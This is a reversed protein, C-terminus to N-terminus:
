WQVLRFTADIAAATSRRREQEPDEALDPVASYAPALIGDRIARAKIAQARAIDAAYSRPASRSALWADVRKRTERADWPRYAKETVLAAPNAPVSVCSLELLEWSTFRWGGNKLPERALPIFGVSVAAIIGAKMLRLYEDSRSSTGELPFDILAVVKDDAIAISECRAIPQNSDHQALVIPNKRYNALQVGNPELIDGMRDLTGDSAIVRVQREGVEGIGFFRVAGPVTSRQVASM